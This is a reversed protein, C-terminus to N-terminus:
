HHLFRKFDVQWISIELGDATYEEIEKLGSLSMSLTYVRLRAGLVVCELATNHYICLTCKCRSINSLPYLAGMIWLFDSITSAGSLRKAVM